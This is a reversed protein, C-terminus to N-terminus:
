RWRAICSLTPSATPSRSSRAMYGLETTCVPTFDKAHSFLVTWSDGRWEHFRICGETTAAEFDSAADGIQLGM